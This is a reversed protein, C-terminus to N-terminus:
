CNGWDRGWQNRLVYFSENKETGFGVLSVAHNIYNRPIGNCLPDSFIGSVYHQFNETVYLAASVPGIQAIANAVANDDGRGNTVDNYGTLKAGSEAPDYNCNDAQIYAQM